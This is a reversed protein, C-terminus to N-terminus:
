LRRNLLKNQHHEIMNDSVDNWNFVHFIHKIIQRAIDKYSARLEILQIDKKWSIVDEQSVYWDHLPINGDFSALHRMACGNLTVALHLSEINVINEYARSIFLIFETLSHIASPFSLCKKDFVGQMQRQHEWLTRKFIFLESQYFRFGERIDKGDFFGQFGANFITSNVNTHINPFPWGRLDVQYKRLLGEIDPLNKIREPEYNSPYVILEWRPNNLFGKQLVSTFYKDADRIEINYLDETEPTPILPKGKIIKEINGLLEDSRKLMARGILDRMDQESSIEETTAASTRIYIAGKRLILDKSKNKSISDASIIPVDEFEAVNIVVVHKYSITAKKVDIRAKPSGYRHLMQAIDTQDLSDRIEKNVGKLEYSGDEVGLIITGGDRTNAMGMLDRILEFQLDRNEKHWKFGGKYDLNASEAKREILKEIESSM